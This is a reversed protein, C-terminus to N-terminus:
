GDTVAERFVATWARSLEQEDPAELIVPSGQERLGVLRLTTGRSKKDLSMLARLEPWAQEPYSIPLGLGALLRSHDNVCRKSLGLLRRSVEAMFVMGVAIAEGHRWSFNERAEVAHGLTHGYNLAERGVADGVSTRETLDRSVVEAKVAVARGVLEAFTASTVDLAGPLDDDLLQLIRADRIFGCKVVEALGSRVEVEPLGTLLDLDCLVAVPEHFAGVLNKGTPLNIGTKGGVAADVMGLVSTPISIFGVGRLWSAAVFGALDTTTGGGLGIVLDSRTFGAGALAEWCRTLVEPTKAAESDPVPILTVRRDGCRVAVLGAQGALTEPVIIAIRTASGLVGPLEALAGHDIVVDYPVAATVGIRM